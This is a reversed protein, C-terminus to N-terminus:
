AGLAQDPRRRRAPRGKSPAVQSSTAPGRRQLPRPMGDAVAGAGDVVLGTSRALVQGTVGVGAGALTSAARSALRGTGGAVKTAVAIGSEGVAIAGKALTSTTAQVARATTDAAQGGVQAARQGPTTQGPAQQRQRRYGLLAVLGGGGAFVAALTEPDM